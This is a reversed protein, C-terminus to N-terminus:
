NKLWWKNIDNIITEIKSNRPNWDLLIKAKDINAVCYIPDGYSIPKKIYNIDNINSKIYDLIRNLSIGVGSGINFTLNTEHVLIYKLALINAEIVDQLHVFDRTPYKNHNSTFVILEKNEYSSKLAKPIFRIPPDYYDGISRNVDVGCVNFYRLSIQNIIKKCALEYLIREVYSKSQGYPSVPKQNADEKVQKSYNGYTSSSSSFIINKINANAICRIVNLSGHINTMYYEFPNEISEHVSTKAAFLYVAIPKFKVLIKNIKNENSIDGEIIDYSSIVDKFGMSFNDYIIPNFGNNELQLCTSSGIYGGGGIVLINKKM